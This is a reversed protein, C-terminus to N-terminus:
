HAFRWVHAAHDQKCWYKQISLDISLCMVGTVLHNNRQTDEDRPRRVWMSNILLETFLHLLIFDSPWCAINGYFHLIWTRFNNWERFLTGNTILLFEYCSLCLSLLRKFGQSPLGLTLVFSHYTSSQNSFAKSQLQCIIQGIWKSLVSFYRWFAGNNNWKSENPM